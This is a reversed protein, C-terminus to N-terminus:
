PKEDEKVYRALFLMQGVIFLLMVSTFGFTKIKVWTSESFNFAIYLNAIGLLAFFIAWSWNVWAWVADPLKLEAKALISRILNKKLFLASVVLVLSFIWYLVTPKWLIFRADQLYITLGGFVVVIALTIWLMPEVPRKRLRLWGVQGLTALIMAATAIFLDAALYAAFFVLVPFLDFLFKM